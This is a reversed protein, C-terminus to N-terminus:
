FTMLRVNRIDMGSRNKSLRNPTFSLSIMSRMKALYRIIAGISSIITLLFFSKTGIYLFTRINGPASTNKFFALWVGLNIEFRRFFEIDFGRLTHNNLIRDNSNLRRLARAHFANGHKVTIRTFFQFFGIQNYPPQLLALLYQVKNTRQLAIKFILLCEGIIHNFNDCKVDISSHQAAVVVIIDHWRACPSTLEKVETLLM